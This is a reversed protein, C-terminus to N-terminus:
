ETEASDTLDFSLDPGALRIYFRNLVDRGLLAQSGPLAVVRLLDLTHGAVTLTLYYMPVRDRRGDYGSVLLDGAPPVNLPDLVAQPLATLDAGTDLQAITNSSRTSDTPHTLTIPLTPAPPDFDPDYPFM